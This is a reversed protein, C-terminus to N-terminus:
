KITIKQKAKVRGYIAIAGAIATAASLAIEALQDKEVDLGDIGFAGAIGIVVTIISALVTKSLYWPKEEKEAMKKLEKIKSKLFKLGIKMIIKDILNM